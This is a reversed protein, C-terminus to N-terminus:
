ILYNLEAAVGVVYIIPIVQKMAALVRYEVTELFILKQDNLLGVEWKETDIDLTNYKLVLTFKSLYTFKHLIDM